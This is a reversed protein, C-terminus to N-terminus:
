PRWTMLLYDVGMFRQEGAERMGARRAFFGVHPMLKPVRTWLMTAGERTMYALMESAFEAAWQGRGEPLILTHVEYVGPASWSLAFAGHEGDLFVNDRNAVAETLDIRSEGDGGVFPRVAPDNALTNIREADFTRRVLTEPM